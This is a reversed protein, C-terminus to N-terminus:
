VNATFNHIRIFFSWTDNKLLDKSWVLWRTDETYLKPLFTSTSVKSISFTLVSANFFNSSSPTLTYGEDSFILIIGRIIDVSKLGIIPSESFAVNATTNFVLTLLILIKKMKIFSFM